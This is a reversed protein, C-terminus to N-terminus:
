IFIFKKMEHSFSEEAYKKENGDGCEGLDLSKPESKKGVGM